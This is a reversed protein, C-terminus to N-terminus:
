PVDPLNAPDCPAKRSPFLISKAGTTTLLLLAVFGILDVISNLTARGM